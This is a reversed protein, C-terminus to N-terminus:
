PVRVLYREVTEENLEIGLGPRETLLYSMEGDREFPEKLLETRLPNENEESEIFPVNPLSAALQLNAATMVASFFSHPAFLKGEAQCVAAIRRTETFGGAYGINAQVIDLRNEHILQRYREMGQESEGGAIRVSGLKEKLERYAEPGDMRVPEEVAYIGTERFLDGADLVESVSWTNNMDVMLCAEPGIAERFARIRAYDEERRIAQTSDPMYRLIGARSELSRGAKMKFARYGQKRYGEAERRLGDLDKGKQYFGASAYAKVCNRNAGFIRYLPMKCCKGFIDWLAMDAASAVARVLGRRGGAYSSWFMREWLYEMNLPDEGELVPLLYERVIQRAASMPMGFLAAEGIGTIGADTDILLLFAERRGCTNCGDMIPTQYSYRLCLTRIDTIRM